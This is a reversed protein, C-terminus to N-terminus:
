HRWSATARGSLAYIGFYRGAESPSVSRALYLAFFGASSGFAIGILTGYLIYAKEAPTSFLGESVSAPWQVLGFLTFDRGTSIIGVTAALLFLLGLVVVFKSGFLRDISDAATCGFIAVVNLIIGYIGIEMTSWGFMAAAFIGGLILLGNVGDQYIM